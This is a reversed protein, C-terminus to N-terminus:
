RLNRLMCTYTPADLFPQRSGVQRYGWSEYLARVREKTQEVILTVREETRGQLLDDHIRRALGTKRWPKRVMIEFLGFTRGRWERILEPDTVPPQISAWWAAAGTRGAGYAYGAPTEGDYAVVAEWNDGTVHNRLRDLFSDISHFGDSLREAYVEAYIDVLVPRILELQDVGFRRLQIGGPATM